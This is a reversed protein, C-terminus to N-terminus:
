LIAVEPEGLHFPNSADRRRFLRPWLLRLRAWRLWVKASPHRRWQLDRQYALYLPTFQESVYRRCADPSLARGADAHDAVFHWAIQQLREATDQRMGYPRDAMHVARGHLVASTVLAIYYAGAATLHVDDEFILALTSRTDRGEFGPISPPSTAQEVLVALAAGAPITLLRDTRGVHALDHNIRKAVCQWVPTAAWEYAIWSSPDDMDSVTMWSQFLYTQAQADHAIVRDHFDRLYHVTDKWVISDLLSHQETIILTDYPINRVTQPSQLEALADLPQGTKDVGARYGSWPISGNGMTRDKVSSGELTQMNWQIPEGLTAAIMKLYEPFPHDTLSHGSLFLRKPMRLRRTSGARTDTVVDPEIMNSMVPAAPGVPSLALVLGVLRARYGHKDGAKM